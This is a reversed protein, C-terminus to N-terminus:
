WISFSETKGRWFVMKNLHTHQQLNEEFAMTWVCFAEFEKLCYEGGRETRLTKITRNVENEVRAKFSKFVSFAELKKQLFYV